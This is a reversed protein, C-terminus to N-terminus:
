AFKTHFHIPWFLICCSRLKENSSKDEIAQLKLANYLM